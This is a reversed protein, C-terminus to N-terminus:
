IRRGGYKKLAKNLGHRLRKDNYVREFTLDLADFTSEFDHTYGYEHDALECAFMQYIYGEGTTDAEIAREREHEHRDFMEHLATADTKRYFGGTSGLMYIKDTDDKTLGWGAMMETFQKDSFAFGLPFANVEEQHRDKLEKYKIM